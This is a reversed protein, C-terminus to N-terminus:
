ALGVSMLEFALYNQRAIDAMPIYRSVEDELSVQGLVFTKFKAIGDAHRPWHCDLNTKQRNQRLLKPQTYFEVAPQSAALAKAQLLGCM